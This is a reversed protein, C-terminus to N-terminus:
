AAAAPLWAAAAGGAQLAAKAGKRWDVATPSMVPEEVVDFSVISNMENPKLLGYKKEINM